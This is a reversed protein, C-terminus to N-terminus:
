RETDDSRVGKNEPIGLGAFIDAILKETDVPGLFASSGVGYKALATSIIHRLDVATVNFFEM